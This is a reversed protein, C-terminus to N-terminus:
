AGPSAPPSADSPRVGRSPALFGVLIAVAGILLLALPWGLVTGSARHGSLRASIQSGVSFLFVFLAAGGVYCPGRVRARSGYAILGLAIVLLLLDWVFRQRVDFGGVSHALGVAMLLWRNTNGSLHRDLKNWIALWAIVIDLAAVLAAFRINARWAAFGASAASLVFAPITILAGHAGAWRFFLTLWIANLVVALIALVSRWPAADGRPGREGEGVGTMALTYLLAAPVL